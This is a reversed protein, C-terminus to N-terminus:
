PRLRFYGPDKTIPLSVMANNGNTVPTANVATWVGSDLTTAFQLTYSSAWLPYSLILNTGSLSISPVSMVPVPPANTAFQLSATDADGLFERLFAPDSSTTATIHYTGNIGLGNPFTNAVAYGPLVTYSFGGNAQAVNNVTFVVPAATANQMALVFGGTALDLGAAVNILSCNASIM